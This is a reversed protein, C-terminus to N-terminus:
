PKFYAVLVALASIFLAAWSRVCPWFNQRRRLEYDVLPADDSTDNLKARHSMLREDTWKRLEKQRQESM